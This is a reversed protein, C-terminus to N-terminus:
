FNKVAEIAKQLQEDDEGKDSTDTYLMLFSEDKSLVATTHATMTETSEFLSFTGDKKADNIVRKAEPTTKDTFEYLEVTHKSVPTSVTFRKGSSAGIIGATLEEGDGSILGNDTMYQVFGDFTKDYGSPSKTGDGTLTEGAQTSQESNTAEGSQEGGSSGTCGCLMAGMVAAALLLSIVKNM